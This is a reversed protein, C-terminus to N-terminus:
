RYELSADKVKAVIRTVAWLAFLQQPRGKYAGEHDVGPYAVCAQVGARGAPARGSGNCLFLLVALVGGPVFAFFVITWLFRSPPANPVHEEPSLRNFDVAMLKGESVM